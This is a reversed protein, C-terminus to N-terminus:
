TPIEVWGSDLLWRERRLTWLKRKGRAGRKAWSWVEIWATRSERIKQAVELAEIKTRRAAHAGGNGATAQILLVDGLSEPEIQLALIDAFGFLDRRIRINRGGAGPFTQWKEVVDAVHGHDRLWKLTRATPSVGVV